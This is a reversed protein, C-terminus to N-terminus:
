KVFFAWCFLGHFETIEHYGHQNSGSNVRRGRVSQYPVQDDGLEERTRMGKYDAANVFSVQAPAILHGRRDNRDVINCHWHSLTCHQLLRPPINTTPLIAM